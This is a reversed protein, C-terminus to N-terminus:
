RCDNNKSHKNLFNQEVIGIPKIPKTPSKYGKPMRKVALRYIRKAQPHDNYKKLWYYLELYQSRYCNPHLYRQALIHGILIKDNIKLIYKNASKWKCDNQFLYVKRYNIVDEESLLNSSFIDEYKKSIEVQYAFCYKSICINIIFIIIINIFYKSKM